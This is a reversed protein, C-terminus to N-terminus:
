LTLREETKAFIADAYQKCDYGCQGCDQQGMAAMMRRNLAKGEALKMREALPMTQDHWPADDDEAAAAGIQVGPMLAQADQPSLATADSELLGSFFGNLWQRQEATFPASEPVLASLPPRIPFNM